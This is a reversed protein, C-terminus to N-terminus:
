NREPVQGFTVCYKLPDNTLQIKNHEHKTFNM